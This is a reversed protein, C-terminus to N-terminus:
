MTVVRYILRIKLGAARARRLMDKTGRSNAFDDHFAWVETPKGEDLMQQNRIPGAARGHKDWQAPFPMVKIGLELAALKAQTDAGRAEGEIVCDITAPDERLLRGRIIPLNNWNRDGCILIRKM